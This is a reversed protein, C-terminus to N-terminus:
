LVVKEHNKIKMECIIISYLQQVKLLITIYSAFDTLRLMPRQLQVRIKGQSKEVLHKGLCSVSTHKNISRKCYDM